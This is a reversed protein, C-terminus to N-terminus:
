LALCDFHTMTGSGKVIRVRLDNAKYDANFRPKQAGGNTELTQVLSFQGGGLNLLVEYTCRSDLRWAIDFKHFEQTSKLPITIEEGEKLTIPLMSAIPSDSMAFERTPNQPDAMTITEVLRIDTSAAAVYIDFLGPEIM